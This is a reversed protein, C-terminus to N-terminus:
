GEVVKLDILRDIKYYMDLDSYLRGVEDSLDLIYYEGDEYSAGVKVKMGIWDNDIVFTEGVKIDDFKIGSDKMELVECKLM